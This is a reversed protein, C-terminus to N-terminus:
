QTKTILLFSRRLMKLLEWLNNWVRTLISVSVKRHMSVSGREETPIVHVSLNPIVHVSFNPIVHVSLNPIVIQCFGEAILVEELQGSRPRHPFAM